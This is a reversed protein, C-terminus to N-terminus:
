RHQLLRLSKEDTQYGKGVVSLSKMEFSASILKKVATEAANHDAFVGIVTDIEEM